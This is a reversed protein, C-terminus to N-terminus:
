KNLLDHTVANFEKESLTVTNIESNLKKIAKKVRHVYEERDENKSLGFDSVSSVTIELEKESKFLAKIRKLLEPTLENKKVRITTEM